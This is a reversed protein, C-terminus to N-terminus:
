ISMKIPHWCFFATKNKGVYVKNFVDLEAAM